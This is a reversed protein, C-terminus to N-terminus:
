SSLTMIRAELRRAHIFPPNPFPLHLCTMLSMMLKVLVCLLIWLAWSLMYMVVICLVHIFFGHGGRETGKFSSAQKRRVLKSLHLWVAILNVTKWNKRKELLWMQSSYFTFQRLTQCSSFVNACLVTSQFKLWSASRGAQASATFFTRTTWGEKAAVSM